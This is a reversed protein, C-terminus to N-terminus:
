KNSIIKTPYIKELFDKDIKFDYEPEPKSIKDILVTTLNQFELLLNTLGHEMIDEFIANEVIIQNIYKENIDNCLKLKDLMTQNFVEHNSHNSAFILSPHLESPYYSIERFHKKFQYDIHLEYGTETIQYSCTIRYQIHGQYPFLGNYRMCEIKGYFVSCDKQKKFSMIDNHWNNFLIQNLGDKKFFNNMYNLLLAMLFCQVKGIKNKNMNQIHKKIKPYFLIMPM